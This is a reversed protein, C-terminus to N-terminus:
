QDPRQQPAAARQAQAGPTLPVEPPVPAHKKTLREDSDDLDIFINKLDFDRDAKPVKRVQRNETSKPFIPEVAADRNLAADPAPVPKVTEVPTQTSEARPAPQAPAPQAPQASPYTSPAPEQGMTSMRETIKDPVFLKDEETPDLKPMPMPAMKDEASKKAAPQVVRVAGLPAEAAFDDSDNISMQRSTTRRIKEDMKARIEADEASQESYSPARGGHARRYNRIRNWLHQPTMGLLYFLSVALLFFGIILSGTFSCLSYLLYGFSGGILGGGTMEAGHRMLAEATFNREGVPFMTLCFIHIVAGLSLIFTLSAIIKGTALKNDIYRKWYIGLVVLLAPLTFVAPGFLGFLGYCIHYGVTGMWHQTPDELTNQWNCFINLLLSVGVFLALAYFVYPLVKHGPRASRPPELDIQNDKAKSKKDNKAPASGKTAPIENKAKQTTTSASKKKKSGDATAKKPAPEKAPATKQPESTSTSRWDSAPSPQPNTRQVPEAHASTKVQDADKMVNFPQDYASTKKKAPTPLAPKKEGNPTQDTM